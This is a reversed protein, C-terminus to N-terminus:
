AALSQALEEVLDLADQLGAEMGSAIHGDRQERTQHKVHLKMTTRGDKEALLLTTVATADPIAEFTETVVLRENPVIELYEGSFAVEYGENTVMVWRWRGGVRLDIDAQTVTGRKAHWWKKVLEPSTWARYILHRPAAFERTILIETDAPLTVM